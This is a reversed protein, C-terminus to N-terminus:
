QLKEITLDGSVSELEITCNGDGYVYASDGLSKGAFYNVYLDGSVGSEAASFGVDPLILVFSGSVSELTVSKPNANSAFTITGDGSVTEVDIEETVVNSLDLKGSVGNVSLKGCQLKEFCFDGSVTDLDVKEAVIEGSTVSASIVNIEVDQFTANAPIALFLKKVIASSLVAGSKSYQIRLTSGDVFYRMTGDEGKEVDCTEYFEITDGSSQTIIIEGCLWNVDLNTVSLDCSGNGGVSYMKENEYKHTNSFPIHISPLNAFPNGNSTLCYVLCGLAVVIFISWGIIKSKIM